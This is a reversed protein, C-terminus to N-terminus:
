DIVPLEIFSPHGTDHHIRQRATQMRSERQNGTNLNRDWRPFCSSTVQVRLRHGALFVNSTSWLDIEVQRCADADREIRRIGDCINFSRGDPHVDCLRAVWDTSPASSQAHLVVRVRGTVELDRQLPESTFVCVDSRAEVRTQDRPGPPFAAAMITQGGLTPVPDAPDYTFETPTADSDPADPQLAGEAGLLWREVRARELPWAAEDRWRNRGMVFIRVPAQAESPADPVLHRRFWALQEDGLDGHAHAPAGLRSARVGFCLEGIPDACETGHTWPGVVLRASRGLAAMAMYNDLTGQLFGDHWGGIQFSPVTVRDHEGAVRCRAAVDPDELTQITPFAPFDHRRLVPLDDAPLDTCGDSLLRDLDDLLAAVRHGREQVSLPLRELHAGGMAMAWYTDFGLEIAGGRAFVGDLPDSWTVAPAIAALSPPREIAAMWQTNGFYSAGYMGVRGNSGPLRAAWEVTDYGDEREFHLPIWEGESAFRGRTDQIVVIFGQAATQVPDLWEAARKDYPTRVLLTPWPGEGAPRYVNARLTVGDRMRAPVDLEMTVSRATGTGPEDM